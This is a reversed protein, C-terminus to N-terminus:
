SQVAVPVDLDEDVEVRGDRMRVIRDAASAVGVDHTVLV